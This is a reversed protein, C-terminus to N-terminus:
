GLKRIYDYQNFPSQPFCEWVNLINGRFLVTWLSTTGITLILKNCQSIAKLAALFNVAFQARQGVEPMVFSNINKKIQPIEEFRITDNFQRKFYEYFEEEDTQVIFSKSESMQAMKIYVDYDVMLIETVKDNGRYLVATRNEIRTKFEEYKRIVLDSLPCIMKSLLHLDYVPINDYWLHQINHTDFKVLKLTNDPTYERLLIKSIDQYPFDWYKAFQNSSDIVDPFYGNEEYYKITYGLRTNLCSTVGAGDEIKLINM